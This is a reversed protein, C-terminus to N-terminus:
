NHGLLPTGNVMHSIIRLLDAADIYGDGNVDAATENQLSTGNVMHSIIALLDAADIYDDGNVNGFRIILDNLADTYKWKAVESDPYGYKTAVAVIQMDPAILIPATYPQRSEVEMPNAPEENSEDTIYYYVVIGEDSLIDLELSNDANIRPESFTPPSLRARTNLTTSDHEDDNAAGMPMKDPDFDENEEILAAFNLSESNSNYEIQLSAQEGDQGDSWSVSFPVSAQGFDSSDQVTSSKGDVLAEATINRAGEVDVRGEDTKLSVSVYGGAMGSTSLTDFQANYVYYNVYYNDGDVIDLGVTCLDSSITIETGEESESNVGAVVDVSMDVGVFTLNGETSTIRYSDEPAVITYYRPDASEEEDISFTPLILDLNLDDGSLESDQITATNGASNRITVDGVPCFIYIYRQGEVELLNAAGSHNASKLTDYIHQISNATYYGVPWVSSVGSSTIHFEFDRSGRAYNGSSNCTISDVFRSNDYINFTYSNGNRTYSYIVIAHGGDSGRYRLGIHFVVPNGNDLEAAIQQPNFALRPARYVGNWFPQSLQMLEIMSRLKVDNASSGNPARFDHPIHVNPDYNEEQMVNKYFLLASSAMGFCSGGWYANKPARSSANYISAAQQPTYGVQEFRVQPIRYNSGYGFSSYTNLFNYEFADHFQHPNPGTPLVTITASGEIGNATRATITATGEAVGTVVGGTVTAVSANSSSWTVTKNTANDPTIRATATAQNAVYISSPNLTVTLGTPLVQGGTKSLKVNITGTTSSSYFRAGYYYTTGATLSREIRFNLGSGGDDNSATPTTNDDPSRTDYFYGYTDGSTNTSEFIYSGSSQPTFSFYARRGSTAINATSTTFNNQEVAAADLSIATSSNKVMRVYITGTSTSWHWRAAFAYTRGAELNQALRFNLGNGGDDNDATSTTGLGNEYFHGHPDGDSNTSEFIYAGSSQPTFLFFSYEGATSINASGSWSGDREVAAADITAADPRGGSLRVTASGTSSDSWRSVGYYYTTGQTLNSTIYFNRGEGGDDNSGLSNFNADYLTVYPDFISSDSAVNNSSEFSYDQTTPPTFGFYVVQGRERITATGSYGPQMTTALESL